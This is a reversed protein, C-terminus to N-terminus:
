YGSSFALIYSSVVLFIQITTGLLITKGSIKMVRTTYTRLTSINAICRHNSVHVIIQTLKYFECTLIANNPSAMFGTKSARLKNRLNLDMLSTSRQRQGFSHDSQIGSEFFLDLYISHKKIKINRILRASILQFNVEIFEFGQTIIIKRISRM